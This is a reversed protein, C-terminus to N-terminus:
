LRLLTHVNTHEYIYLLHRSILHRSIDYAMRRVLVITTVHDSTLRRVRSVGM